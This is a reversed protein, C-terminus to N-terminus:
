VDEDSLESDDSNISSINCSQLRKIYDCRKDLLHRMLATKRSKKRSKGQKKLNLIQDDLKKLKKKIKQQSLDEYCKELLGTLQNKNLERINSLAAECQMLEKLIEDDEDADQSSSHPLSSSSTLQKIQKGILGLTELQKIINQEEYFEECVNSMEELKDEADSDIESDKDIEKQSMNSHELLAAIVKQYIPTSENRGRAANNVRTILEVVDPSVREALPTKMNPQRSSSSAQQNQMEERVWCKTYHEGLPPIIDPESDYSMVLDELWNLSEKNVEALYPEVLSWFKKSSESQDPPLDENEPPQDENEPPLDENEPPLDENEVNNSSFTDDHSLEGAVKPLIMPLKGTNEVNNQSDVEQVSSILNTVTKIQRKRLIVDALMSECEWQINDFVENTIIDEIEYNDEHNVVYWIASDPKIQTPNLRPLSLVREDIVTHVKASKSGAKVNNTKPLNPSLTQHRKPCRKRASRRIGSPEGSHQSPKKSSM